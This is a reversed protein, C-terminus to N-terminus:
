AVKALIPYLDVSAETGNDNVAVLEEGRIELALVSASEGPEGRDGKDGREGRSGRSVLLRWGDGPCPGPNDRKAAFSSGQLMVVDLEEYASDADYTGCLKLSKGAAGKAVIRQWDAHPPEKGTARLAQWTEGGHTVVEAEIYVRDEWAKVLPLKGAPGEPGREGDKAPPIAAVLERLLPEVDAVTISAGDRGDKPQPIAAVMERLFPEVDSVTISAGDRGPPAPPIAAVADSVAEAVLERVMDPDADRGDRGSEGDKPLPLAAVMERLIPEIDSITVSAGDEGDRGDRGDKPVPIAAVLERLVPVVDELSVSKGDAGREGIAGTEGPDGREGVDGKAGRPLNLEFSHEVEGITFRLLATEDDVRDVDVGDIGAPTPIDAVAKVVAERVLSAIVEPDADAGDRPKPLAEVLERVMPAVDALTVSSGDRGDRPAPIRAVAEDVLRQVHAPDADRGDKGNIPAPIDAVAALAAERAATRADEAVLAAVEAASPAVGDRPAPIAAVAALAAETARAVVTDMIRAAVDDPDADRGNAGDIGDRGNAGDKGDKLEALRAKTEVRLARLEAMEAAFEAARLERERAAEREVGALRDDVYEKVAEFGADFAAQLDM